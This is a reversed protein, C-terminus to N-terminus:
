HYKKFMRFNFLSVNLIAAVYLLTCVLPSFRHVNLRLHLEYGMVLFYAAAMVPLLLAAFGVLTEPQERIYMITRKVSRIISGPGRKENKESNWPLFFVSLLLGLIFGAMLTISHLIMADVLVREPARNSLFYALNIAYPLFLMAARRNDVPFYRVLYLPAGVIFLIIGFGITWELWKVTVPVPSYNYGIVLFVTSVAIVLALYTWMLIANLRTRKEM